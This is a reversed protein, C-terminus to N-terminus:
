VTVPIRKIGVKVLHVKLASPVILVIAYEASLKCTSAAAYSMCPYRYRDVM